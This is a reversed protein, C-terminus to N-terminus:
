LRCFNGWKKPKRKLPAGPPGCRKEEHFHWVIGKRGKGCRYPHWHAMKDYQYDIAWQRNGESDFRPGSVAGKQKPYERLKVELFEPPVSQGARRAKKTDKRSAKRTELKCNLPESKFTDLGLYLMGQRRISAAASDVHTGPVIPTGMLFSYSKIYEIREAQSVVETQNIWIMFPILCDGVQWDWDSQITRRHAILIAQVQQEEDGRQVSTVPVLVQLPSKDLAPGDPLWLQAPPSINVQEETIVCPVKMFPGNAFELGEAWPHQRWVIPTAQRMIKRVDEVLVPSVERYPTWRDEDQNDWDFELGRSLKEVMNGHTFAVQRATQLTYNPQTILGTAMRQYGDAV